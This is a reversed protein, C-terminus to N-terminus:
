PLGRRALLPKFSIQAIVAVTGVDPASRTRINAITRQVCSAVGITDGAVKVARAARAEDIVFSIRITLASTRKVKRAAARYCDRLDGITREIASHVESTPLSGDVAVKTIALTADLSGVDIIPAPPPEPTAVPVDPKPRSPEPIPAPSVAPTAAPSSEVVEIQAASGRSALDTTSATTSPKAAASRKPPAIAVRPPSTRKGPSPTRADALIRRAAPDDADHALVESALAIARAPDSAALAQRARERLDELIVRTAQEDDPHHEVLQRALLVAGTTDNAAIARQLRDRLQQTAIRADLKEIRAAIAPDDRHQTRVHALLQQAERLRYEGLLREAEDLDAAVQRPRAVTSGPADGRHEVVLVPAAPATHERQDGTGDSALYGAGGAIVVLALALAALLPWRRRQGTGITIPGAVADLRTVKSAVPQEALAPAPTRMSPQQRLYEIEALSMEHDSQRVLRTLRDRREAFNAGMLGRIAKTADFGSAHRALYRSLATAFDGASAYRDEVDPALAIMVIEDLLANCTAGAQSPRPLRASMVLRLLESDSDAEFANRGTLLQWLVIGLSYVDSRSDIAQGRAQEPSMYSFKGKIMGARTTQLKTAVKAIGFDLLKVMGDFSVLINSPSVDRHVLQLPVGSLDTLTHAYELANAVDRTIAVALEVPFSGGSRSVARAFPGLTEGHVFEMAMYLHDDLEGADFTQVICPHNLLAATHVEELFMERFGTSDATDRLFKLAVIKDFGAAGQQRAVYVDAMGGSAWKALLRYRSSEISYSM